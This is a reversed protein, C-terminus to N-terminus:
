LYFAAAGQVVFRARIRWTASSLLVERRKTSCRNKKTAAVHIKAWNQWAVPKILQGNSNLQSLRM